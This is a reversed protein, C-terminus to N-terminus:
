KRLRFYKTGSMPITATNVTGINSVTPQPDMETFAVSLDPSSEFVYGQYYAPWSLRVTTGAQVVTLRLAPALEYVNGFAAGLVLRTMDPYVDLGYYQGNYGTAADLETKSYTTYLPGLTTADIMNYVQIGNDTTQVFLYSGREIVTWLGFSGEGTLPGANGLLTSAGTALNLAYFNPNSNQGADGYYAYGPYSQGVRVNRIRTTVETTVFGDANWTTNTNLSFPDAVVDTLYLRKRNTPESAPKLYCTSIMTDTDVWDFSEVVQDGIANAVVPDSGYVDYRTLTPIFNTAPDVGDWGGTGIFYKTGTPGQFRAVMRHENAAPIGGVLFESSGSHFRGFCRFSPGGIETAFIDGDFYRPNYTTNDGQGLTLKPAVTVGLQWNGSQVPFGEQLEFVNYWALGIIFTKLDSSVDLGYIQTTSDYPAGCCADLEAKSYLTYLSGLTTADALSYVYIGDAPTQLFLYGGREVATTIGGTSLVGLSGLQTWEGTALRIAYFKPSSATYDGFYAYGSYVQGVRINRISSTGTVTVYGNANWTTNRTMAFPEATVDVLYLRSRNPSGSDITIITNDDVWDFTDVRQTDVSNIVVPNSGDWNYRTFCTNTFTGGVANGSSSGLMYTSSYAGPFGIVMRHENTHLDIPSNDVTVEPIVSGAGYRGFCPYNIQNAYTKGGFYRPNYMTQPEMTGLYLGPALVRGRQLHGSRIPAAETLSAGLFAAALILTKKM